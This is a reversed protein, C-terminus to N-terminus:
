DSSAVILYKANKIDVPDYAAFLSDGNPTDLGKYRRDDEKMLIARYFDRLWATQCTPKYLKLTTAFSLQEREVLLWDLGSIRYLGLVKPGNGKMMRMADARCALTITNMNAMIDAKYQGRARLLQRNWFLVSSSGVGEAPAPYTSSNGAAIPILAPLNNASM